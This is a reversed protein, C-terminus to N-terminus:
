GIQIASFNTYTGSHVRKNVGNTGDAFPQLYNGASMRVVGCATLTNFKMNGATGIGTPVNMYARYITNATGTGSHYIGILGYNSGSSPITVGFLSSISVYHYTVGSGSPATYKSTSADWWSKNNTSYSNYYSSNLGTIAEAGGSFIQETSQKTMFVAPVEPRKVLGDNNIQVSNIGNAKIFMQNDTHNYEVAGNPTTSTNTSRNLSLISYGNAAGVVTIGKNGTAGGIVLDDSHETYDAPNLGIGVRGSSDIRVKETGSTQFTMYNDTNGAYDTRYAIKGDVNGQDDKFLVAGEGGDATASLHLNPNSAGIQVDGSTTLGSLTGVSTIDTQAPNVKATTVADDAIESTGVANDAMQANAVANDAIQANAVADDAIQATNIADDAVKANTVADDAVKATTINADTIKATTIAGDAIDATEVLGSSSPKFKSLNRALSM